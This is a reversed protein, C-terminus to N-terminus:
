SPLRVLPEQETASIEEQVFRAVPNVTMEIKQTYLGHLKALESGASIRDRHAAKEDHMIATLTAAIEARVEEVDQNDKRFMVEKMHLFNKNKLLMSAKAGVQSGSYRYVTRVAEKLDRGKMLEHIVARWRLQVKSMASVDVGEEVALEEHEEPTNVVELFAQREKERKVAEADKRKRGKAALLEALSGKKGEGRKRKGSKEEREERSEVPVDGEAPAVKVVKQSSSSVSKCKTM